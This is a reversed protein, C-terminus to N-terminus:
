TKRWGIFLGILLGMAAGGLHAQWAIAPMLVTLAVNLGGILAVSRILPTMAKHRRRMHITAYGILAGALGFVAGSAGIMPGAQPQMLAFLLAAAIQCILYTAAMARSGIMRTLERAIAALSVMNMAMHLLGGHLLGYTLFMAIGQGPYLGPGQTLLPSWFAGLMFAAPRLSPYGAFSALGLAGECLVCAVILLRVWLPLAPKSTLKTM